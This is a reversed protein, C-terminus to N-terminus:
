AARGKATGLLELVVSIGVDDMARVFAHWSAEGAAIARWPSLRYRPYGMARGLRLLAVREASLVVSEARRADWAPHCAACHWMSSQPLLRWLAGGCCYCPESPRESPEPSPPAHRLGPPNLLPQPIKRRPM